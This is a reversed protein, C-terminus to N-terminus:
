ATEPASGSLQGAKARVAAQTDAPKLDGNKPTAKKTLPQDAPQAWKPIKRDKGDADKAKFKFRTGPELLRNMAFGREVAVLEIVDPTAAKKDEPKKTDDAM